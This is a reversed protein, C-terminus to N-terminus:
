IHVPVVNHIFVRKLFFEHLVKQRYKQEDCKGTVTENGQTTLKQISVTQKAVCTEVLQASFVIHVKELDWAHWM